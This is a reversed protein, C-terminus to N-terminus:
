LAQGSSIGLNWKNRERTEKQREKEGLVDGDVTEGDSLLRIEGVTGVCGYGHTLAAVDIDTNELEACAPSQSTWLEDIARWVGPSVREGM